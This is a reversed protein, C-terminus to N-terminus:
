AERTFHATWNTTWTAGADYSFRQEWHAETESVPKWHYHVRTLHGGVVEDAYLNGVGDTFRGVVPVDIVGPNRSSAWWVRWVGVAPDYLRVTLGELPEGTPPLSTVHLLDVNGLGSLVPSCETVSDFEVWDTCDRDLINVIKRQRGRWRGHFFDFDHRGGTGAGSDTATM